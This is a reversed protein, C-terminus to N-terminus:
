FLRWWSMASIGIIILIFVGILTGAVAMDKIKIYGSGYAIANPPTSIPLSMATSAALLVTTIVL